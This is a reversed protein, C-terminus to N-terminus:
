FWVSLQPARPSAFLRDALALSGPTTEVVRGSRALLSPTVDGLYIASLEAVGLRLGQVPRSRRTAHAAADPAGQELRRVEAHGKGSIEVEFRGAAFGRPDDVELVLSGTGSYRRAELAAIPDLIRLWLHDHLATTRIARRDDILWPLPEDVSRLHARVARVYDQELLFRWLAREAEDSAAAMFDFELVGAGEGEHKVRYAVFGQPQDHRDDYRAVRVARSRESEPHHVGLVRDLLGPWRDIEGPTRAVARRAIAAAQERMKAPEVFQVRGPEAAGTWEVRAREIELTTARAAPAFGYRGYITAETATLMAVAAGAAVANQLEGEMLARAVGRRRHTPAVTVSSIAWGDVSRGGPVSLGTPWSAVTAVPVEPVDLTPDYVGHVRREAFVAIERELDAETPAPNHFGRIDALSWAALAARDRPDIVRYSLGRAALAAEVKPDIPIDRLDFPM